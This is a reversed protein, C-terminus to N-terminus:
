LFGRDAWGRARVKDPLAEGKDAMDAIVASAVALADPVAPYAQVLLSAMQFHNLVGKFVAACFEITVNHEAKLNERLKAVAEHTKIYTIANRTHFSEQPRSTPPGPPLSSPNPRPPQPTSAPQLCTSRACFCQSSLV